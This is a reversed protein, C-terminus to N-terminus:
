LFFDRPLNFFRDANDSRNPNPPVWVTKLAKTSNDNALPSMTPSITALLTKISPEPPTGMGVPEVRFSSTNRVLHISNSRWQFMLDYRIFWHVHALHKFRGTNDQVTFISWADQDSVIHFLFNDIGTTFNHEQQALSWFPHDGMKCDVEDDNLNFKVPLNFPMSAPNLVDLFYAQTVVPHLLMGISGESTKRGAYFVGTFNDRIFQVFGFKFGTLTDGQGLTVKVHGIFDFAFGMQKLINNYGRTLNAVIANGQTTVKPTATPIAGGAVVDIGASSAVVQNLNAM